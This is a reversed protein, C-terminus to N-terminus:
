VTTAKLRKEVIRAMVSAGLPIMADDFTYEPNHVPKEGSHGIWCYAGPVARLMDAFDESGMVPEPKTSVNDAGAIERAVDAYADTQEPHNELVTFVDRIDVKVEVDFAAAIGNALETMRKKVQVRVNDSFARVTGSIVAEAPIVNYAAGAHIQTVSVVAAQQPHVNRSVITQLAQTIATVVIIPDRSEHPRAGHSGHGKITIDFFDAGAMAVGPFVSVRGPMRNPANHM